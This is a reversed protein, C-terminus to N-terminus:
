RIVEPMRTLADLMAWGADAANDPILRNDIRPRHMGAIGNGGTTWGTHHLGFLSQAGEPLPARLSSGMACGRHRGPVQRDQWRHGPDTGALPPPGSAPARGSYGAAAPGAHGAQASGAGNECYGSRHAARM